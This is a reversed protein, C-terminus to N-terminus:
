NQWKHYDTKKRRRSWNPIAVTKEKNNNNQWQQAKDTTRAVSMCDTANDMLKGHNLTCVLHTWHPGSVVSTDTLPWDDLWACQGKIRRSKHAPSFTNSTAQVGCIHFRITQWWALWMLEGHNIRLDSPMPHPGSVMSAATLKWDDLWDCQTNSQCSKQVPWVADSTAWVGCIRCTNPMWGILVRLSWGCLNSPGRELTLSM